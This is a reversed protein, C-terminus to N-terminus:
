LTQTIASLVDDLEYKQLSQEAVEVTTSDHDM